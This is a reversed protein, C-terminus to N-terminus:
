DASFTVFAASGTPVNVQSDDLDECSSAGGLGWRRSEDEGDGSSPSVRGEPSRPRSKRTGQGTTPAKVEDERTKDEDMGPALVQDLLGVFVFLLISM